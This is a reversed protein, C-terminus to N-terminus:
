NGAWVGDPANRALDLLDTLAALINEARPGWGDPPRGGLHDMVRELSFISAAGTMGYLERVGNEGFVDNFIQANSETITYEADYGALYGDELLITRGCCPCYLRLDYSAKKLIKATVRM